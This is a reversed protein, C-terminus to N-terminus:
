ASADNCTVDAFWSSAYEDNGYVVPTLEGAAVDFYRLTQVYDPTRQEVTEGFGISVIMIECASEPILAAMWCGQDFEASCQDVYRADSYYEIAAPFTFGMESASYRDVGTANSSEEFQSDALETFRETLATVGFALGVILGIVVVSAGAAIGAIWGKSLGRRPAPSGPAVPGSAPYEALLTARAQQLTTAWRDAAQRSGADPYRSPHRAWAAARYAADISESTLPIAPDLNLAARAAISEM